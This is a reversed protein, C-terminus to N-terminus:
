WELSFKDSGTDKWDKDDELNEIPAVKDGEFTFCAILVIGLLLIVAVIVRLHRKKPAQKENAIAADNQIPLNVDDNLLVDIPTDYLEGLFKLNDTSPVAAGVEWRSIAQRSVRLKEALEMQSLNKEKRLFVLKEGLKM